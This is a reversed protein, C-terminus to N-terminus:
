EPLLSFTEGGSTVTFDGGEDLAIQALQQYPVVLWYSGHDERNLLGSFARFM